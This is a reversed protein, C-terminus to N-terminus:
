QDHLRRSGYKVLTESSRVFPVDLSPFGVAIGGEDPGRGLHRLKKLCTTLNKAAGNRKLRALFKAGKLGPNPGESDSRGVCM